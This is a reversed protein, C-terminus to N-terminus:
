ANLSSNAWRVMSRRRGCSESAGMLVKSWRREAHVTDGHDVDPRSRCGSRATLILVLAM